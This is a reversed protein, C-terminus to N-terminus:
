DGEEACTMDQQLVLGAGALRHKQTGKGPRHAAVEFPHLERGVQQWGVQGANVEVVLLGALELESGAWEERVKHQRVLDVTGRRAGLRSQQFRHLFLLDGHVAHRAAQRLRKHNQRGLIRQFGEARKRQRVGLHVAKEHPQRQAVHGTRLLHFDKRTRCRLVNQAFQLRDHGRFFSGIDARRVPFHFDRVVHFIVQHIDDLRGTGLATEDAADRGTARQCEILRRLRIGGQMAPIVDNRLVDLLQSRRYKAM